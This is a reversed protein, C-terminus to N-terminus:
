HGGIPGGAAKGGKGAIWIILLSIMWAVVFSIVALASVERRSRLSMQPLPIIPMRLQAPTLEISEM